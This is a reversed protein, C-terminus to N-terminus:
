ASCWVIQDSAGSPASLAAPHDREDRPGRDVPGLRDRQEVM